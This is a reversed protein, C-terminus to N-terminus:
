GQKLSLILNEFVKKRREPKLDSRYIRMLQNKIFGRNLEKPKQSIEQKLAKFDESLKGLQAQHETSPSKGLGKFRQRYDKYETDIEEKLQLLPALSEENLGVKNLNKSSANRIRFAEYHYWIFARINLWLIKVKVLGAVCLVVILFLGVQVMMTIRSADPLHEKYFVWIAQRKGARLGDREGDELGQSYPHEYKSCSRFFNAILIVGIIFLIRKFTLFRLM